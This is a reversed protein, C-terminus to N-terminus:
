RSVSVCSHNSKSNIDAVSMTIQALFCVSECTDQLKRYVLAADLIMNISFEAKVGIMLIETVM